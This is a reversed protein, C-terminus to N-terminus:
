PSGAYPLISNVTLHIRWLRRGHHRLMNLSWMMVTFIPYWKHYQGPQALFEQFLDAEQITLARVIGFKENVFKVIDM